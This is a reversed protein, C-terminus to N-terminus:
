QMYVLGTNADVYLTYSSLITPPPGFGTSFSSGAFHLVGDLTITPSSMYISMPSQLTMGNGSDSLVLGNGTIDFADSGTYMNVYGLGMSNLSINGAELNIAALATEGVGQIFVQGGAPSQLTTGGVFPEWAIGSSNTGDQTLNFQNGAVANSSNLSNAYLDGSGNLTANATGAFAGGVNYQIAGTTGAASTTVPAWGVGLTLASNAVLAYGDTGVPIRADVTSHGFLDGKTTLPSSGGPSTTAIVLGKANTALFSNAIPLYLNSTSATQASLTGQVSANGGVNLGSFLSLSGANIRDFVDLNGTTISGAQIGPTNIGPISLATLTSGKLTTVFAVNGSIAIDDPFYLNTADTTSGVLIPNTTSALSFTYFSNYSSTNDNEYDTVFAYGGNVKITSPKTSTALTTTSLVIPNTSSSIDTVNLYHRNGTTQQGNTSYLYRGQIALGFTYGNGGHYVNVPILPNTIDIISLNGGTGSTLYLYNGNLVERFPGNAQSATTTAVFPATPSSVDIVNMKSSGFNIVYAYSGRVIVDVPDNFVTTGGPHISGVPTPNAPNSIDFVIFSGGYVSLVYAYRGQIDIGEMSAYNATTTSYQGVIKMNTPDSVDAITFTSSAPLNSGFSVSDTTFYALKGVVKIRTMGPFNINSLTGIVTSTRLNHYLITCIELQELQLQMFQSLALLVPVVSLYQLPRAPLPM